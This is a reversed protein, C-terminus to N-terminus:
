QFVLGKKVYKKIKNLLISLPNFAKYSDEIRALNDREYGFMIYSFYAIGPEVVLM